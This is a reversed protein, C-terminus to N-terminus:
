KSANARRVLECKAYVALTRALQALKIDEKTTPYVDQLEKAIGELTESRVKAFLDLTMHNEGTQWVM